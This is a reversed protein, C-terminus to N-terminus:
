FVQQVVRPEEGVGVRDGQNRQEGGQGCAGSVPCGVSVAGGIGRM